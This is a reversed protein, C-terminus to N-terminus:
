EENTIAKKAHAILAMRHPHAGEFQWEREIILLIGQLVIVLKTNHKMSRQLQKTLNKDVRKIRAKAESRAINCEICRCELDGEIHKM